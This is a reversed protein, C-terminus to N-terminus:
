PSPPLLPFSPAGRIMGKTWRHGWFRRGCYFSSMFRANRGDNGFNRSQPMAVWTGEMYLTELNKLHSLYGLSKDTIRTHSLRLWKLTHIRSVHEVADGIPTWWVDLSEAPSAKWSRLDEDKLPAVLRIAELDSFVAIQKVQQSPISDGVLDIDRVRGRENWLVSGDAFPLLATLAARERPDANKPIPHMNPKCGGLILVLTLATALAFVSIRLRVATTFCPPM